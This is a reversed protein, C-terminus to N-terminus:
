IETRVDVSDFLKYTNLLRRGKCVLSYEKIVVPDFLSYTHLEVVDSICPHTNEFDSHGLM